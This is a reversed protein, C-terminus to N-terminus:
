YQYIGSQNQIIKKNEDTILVGDQMKAFVEAALMLEHQAEKQKTIDHVTGISRIINMEDDFLHECREEVYGVSGDSRVIRHTVYYGRKERVSNMYSNNVLEIDDPHIHALFAEYTAGFAQPELGFIRYVEDSWFLKNNLLDLEWHGIKALEQAKNLGYQLKKYEIEQKSFKTVDWFIGLIAFIKGERYLPKKVTRIVKSQGDIIMEEKTELTENKAIVTADDSRYKKAIDIPFFDLDSKGVIDSPELGLLSAYAANAYLYNSHLDKVFINQNLANLILAEDLEFM